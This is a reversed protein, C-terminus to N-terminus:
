EAEDIKEFGVVVRYGIAEAAADLTALGITRGALEQQQESSWAIGRAAAIAATTVGALERLSRLPFAPDRPALPLRLTPRM